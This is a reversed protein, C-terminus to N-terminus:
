AILAAIEALASQMQPVYTGVFQKVDIMPNSLQTKLTNIYMNLNSVPSSFKGREALPIANIKTDLAEKIPLIENFTAACANASFESIKKDLADLIEPLEKASWDMKPAQVVPETKIEVDKLDAEMKAIQKKTSYASGEARCTIEMSLIAEDLHQITIEYYGAATDTGNYLYKYHFISGMDTDITANGRLSKGLLKGSRVYEAVDSFKKKGKYSTTYTSQKKTFTEIISIIFDKDFAM